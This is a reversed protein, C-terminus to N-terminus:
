EEPPLNEEADAPPTFFDLYQLVRFSLHFQFMEGGNKLNTGIISRIKDLRYFMTNKHIFLRSAVKQPNFPNELYVYLTPLLQASNERDFNLLRLIGPHCFEILKRSGQCLALIDMWIYDQYPFLGGDPHRTRGLSAAREAQLYYRRVETIETFSHSLGIACGNRRACIRLLETARDMTDGVQKHNFFIALSNEYLAYIHGALLPQLQQRLLELGQAPNEGERCLVVAMHFREGLRYKLIDLRRRISEQNPHESELLDRLLYSFLQGKNEQYFSSKQMEQAAFSVLKLFCRYDLDTCSHDQELMAVHAVEINHVRVASIYIGCQLLENFLHYPTARASTIQDLKEKRIYAVGSELICGHELEERLISAYASGDDLAGASHAIYRYSSDVVFVPNSLVEGAEDVLHQLGGNSLLAALLRESREVYSQNEEIGTQMATLLARPDEGEDLRKFLDDLVM